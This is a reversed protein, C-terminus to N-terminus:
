AAEAVEIAAKAPLVRGLRTIHSTTLRTGAPALLNGVDNLLDRALVMGERLDAVCVRTLGKTIATVRLAVDTASGSGRLVFEQEAIFTERRRAFDTDFPLGITFAAGEDLAARKIAGAALNAMERVIDRQASEPANPDGFITGALQKLSAAGVGVAIRLELEETALTLALEAGYAFDGLGECPVIQMAEQLMESVDQMVVAPAENWAREGVVSVMKDKSQAGPTHQLRKTLEPLREMASARFLLEERLIPKFFHDDAGARVAGALDTVVRGASMTVIYTHGCTAMSRLQRVIKAAGELNWDIIAVDPALTAMLRAAGQANHACEVVHGAETLHRAIVERDHKNGDVVLARM